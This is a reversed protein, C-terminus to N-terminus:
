ARDDRGDGLCRTSGRRTWPRSGLDEAKKTKSAGPSHVGRRPRVDEEVRQRAVQRGAGRDGGGCGGAHLGAGGGHGGGDQRRADAGPRRGGRSRRGDDRRGGAGGHQGRGGALRELVPRTRAGPVGGREGRDRRGGRGVAALEEVAASEIAELSESPGPWRRRAGTPGLHRIGLAVLLRSVTAADEVGRDGGGPQVGLDAAFRELQLLQEVTLGYLDPPDNILGAGVLQFVREEGLSEIDMAGVRRTTRSRAAGAAVPLRHQHLVHREGGGAKGPARWVVPLGDPVEMEAQPAGARGARGEGPGGSRPDRRGGQARDGPRGASTRPRCRTRTTCPRWGWPPGASSSLSSGPSRRPGAPAGSPSRIDRLRPANRPPFKFAIAWPAPACVHRGAGETRRLRRGQHGRRRNRLGARAAGGGVGPVASRGGGTGEVRRADPSM